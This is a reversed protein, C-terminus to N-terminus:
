LPLEYNQLVLWPAFGQRRYLRIAPVNDANVDLGLTQGPHRAWYHELARSLLFGGVGGKREAEVVGLHYIWRDSPDINLVGVVRGDRAAVYVTGADISERWVAEPFRGDPFCEHYLELAAALDDPTALRVDVSEPSGTAPRHSGPDLRYTAQPRGRPRFGMRELLIRGATNRTGVAGILARAGRDRAEAVSADLLRSGLKQGSADGAVLPGFLEAHDFGRPIEVGGFGVVRGEEEAVVLTEEAAPEWDAVESELEDRSVWVPNGVQLELRGIARRSLDVVADRDGSAFSRLNGVVSSARRSGRM